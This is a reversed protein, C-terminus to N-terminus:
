LLRQPEVFIGCALVLDLLGWLHEYLVAKKHVQRTRLASTLHKWQPPWPLGTFYGRLTQLTYLKQFNSVKTGVSIFELQKLVWRQSLFPFTKVMVIVCLSPPPALMGQPQNAVKPESFSTRQSLNLSILNKTATKLRSHKIVQLQKFSKTPDPKTPVPQTLNSLNSFNLGGKAGLWSHREARCHGMLTSRIKNILENRSALQFSSFLKVKLNVNKKKGLRVESM